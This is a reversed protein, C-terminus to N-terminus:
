VCYHCNQRCKEQQNKEVHYIFIPKDNEAPLSITTFTHEYVLPLLATCYNM